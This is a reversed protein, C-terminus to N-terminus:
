VLTAAGFPFFLDDKIALGPTDRRVEGLQRVQQESLLPALAPGGDTRNVWSNGRQGARIPRADQGSREDDGIDHREFREGVHASQDPM